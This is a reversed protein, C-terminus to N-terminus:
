YGKRNKWARYEIHNRERGYRRRFGIEKQFLLVRDFDTFAKDGRILLVIMSAVLAFWLISALTLVVELVPIIVESATFAGLIPSIDISM